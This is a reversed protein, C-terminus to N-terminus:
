NYYLCYISGGWVGIGPIHADMFDIMLQLRQSSWKYVGKVKQLQLDDNRCCVLMNTAAAAAAM